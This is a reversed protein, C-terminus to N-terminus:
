QAGEVLRRYDDPTDVDAHLRPVRVEAREAAHAHIVTRAGDPLDGHLLEPWVARAFLVPHGHRTGDYPQVVPAARARFVGIVAGVLEATVGPVDVPLVVAAEAEDELARLGARLSDVQESAPDPNVAVDAGLQAAADAVERGLPDGAPGAVVVVRACGGERLATVARELFTREGLRLFAKPSGMRRSRGAALVIGAIMETFSLPTPPRISLRLPQM